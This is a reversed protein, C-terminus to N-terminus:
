TLSVHALALPVVYSALIILACAITIRITNHITLDTPKMMAFVVSLTASAALGQVLLPNLPTFKTIAAVSTTASASLAGSLPAVMEGILGTMMFVAFPTAYALLMFLSVSSTAEKKSRTIDSVFRRIKDIQSPTGGGSESLKAIMFFVYRALWSPSRIEIAGLRRHMLLQARVQRMLSLLAGSYKSDKKEAEELALRKVAENLDFGLKIMESIDALLVSMGSELGKVENFLRRSKMGYGLSAGGIMFVLVL